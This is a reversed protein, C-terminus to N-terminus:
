KSNQIEISLKIMKFVQGFTTQHIKGTKKNCFTCFMELDQQKYHTLLSYDGKLTSFETLNDCLSDQKRNLYKSFDKNETAM